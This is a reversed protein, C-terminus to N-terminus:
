FIKKKLIDNIHLLIAQFINSTRHYGFNVEIFQVAYSNVFLHNRHICLFNSLWTCLCVRLGYVPIRSLLTKHWVSRIYESSILVMFYWGDGWQVASIHLLCLIIVNKVYEVRIKASTLSFNYRFKKHKLIQQLSTINKLM